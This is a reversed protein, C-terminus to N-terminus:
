ANDWRAEPRRPRRTAPRRARQVSAVAPPSERLARRQTSSGQQLPRYKHDRPRQGLRLQGALSGQGDLPSLQRSLTNKPTPLSSQCVGRRRLM